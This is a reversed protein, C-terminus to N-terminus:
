PDRRVWHDWLDTPFLQAVLLWDVAAPAPCRSWYPELRSPPPGLLKADYLTGTMWYRLGNRGSWQGLPAETSPIEAAILLLWHRGWCLPYSPLIDASRRTEWRWPTAHPNM